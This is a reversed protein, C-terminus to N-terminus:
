GNPIRSRRKWDLELEATRMDVFPQGGKEPRMYLVMGAFASVRGLINNRELNRSSVPMHAPGHALAVCIGVPQLKCVNWLHGHM